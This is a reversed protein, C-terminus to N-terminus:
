DATFNLRFIRAPRGRFKAERGSPAASNERKQAASEATLAFLKGIMVSSAGAALALVVDRSGRIGGDAILPVRLKRGRACM